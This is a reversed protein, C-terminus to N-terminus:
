LAPPARVHLLSAPDHRPVGEADGAARSVVFVFPRLDLFLDPVVNGTASTVLIVVDDYDADDYVGSVWTPDPPSALALGPLIPLALLILGVLAARPSLRSVAGSLPQVRAIVWSEVLNLGVMALPRADSPLLQLAVSTIPSV